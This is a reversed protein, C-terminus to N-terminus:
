SATKYKAMNIKMSPAGGSQSSQQQSEAAQQSQLAQMMVQQLVARHGESLQMVQSKFAEPCLRALHTFGKGCLTLYLQDGPNRVMADCLPTVILEVVASKNEESALSVLSLLSKALLARTETDIDSSSLKCVLAPFTCEAILSGVDNYFGQICKFSTQIAAKSVCASSDGGERLILATLQHPVPVVDKLYLLGTASARWALLVSESVSNIVELSPSAVKEAWTSWSDLLLSCTVSLSGAPSPSSCAVLKVTEVLSAVLVSYSDKVAPKVTPALSAFYLLANICISTSYSVVQENPRKQCLQRLCDFLLVATTPEKGVAQTYSPHLEQATQGSLDEVSLVSPLSGETTVSQFLSPVVAQLLTVNVQLLGAWMDRSTAGELKKVLAAVLQTLVCVTSESQQCKRILSQLLSLVKLWESSPVSNTTDKSLLQLLASVLRSVDQGSLSDRQLASTCVAFLAPIHEAQFGKSQVFANTAIPM